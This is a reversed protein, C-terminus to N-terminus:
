DVMFDRIYQLVDEKKVESSEGTRRDKIEVIGEAAGKGVVIKLPFGILDADKFKFGAREDRDDLVAEIGNDSLETYIKEGLSVQTEDKINAIIVDVLYPAINKPWIIGFEDHNQEIAAAMVRSIGIGYCGMKIIQQKGNEDLVAANLAKSYKDGLKFIHGVEIGKALKLTGKGDPSTDGEKAKRIDAVLDYVIDEINVNIYHYEEKNAGLAFNRVYKVTEDIVVKLGDKKEYSGAYGPVLGFRECEEPTMMELEIKAGIANKLKISNVDLDGRILALVFNEGDETVEKLMVAKVTKEKPINLFNALDEITKAHPTKVLEKTLKKEDSEKLEIISVAKEVNAAYNSSDDYLIDDEGSEALVMFEHSSDGGISGSDAEVARFNLGCRTFIREYASKMNIYEEDLSKQDIHFSYADKMIFERGRMLGFRPRIEDRFKTQIQYLNFPLDKYSSVMNRVIDTVVEEHTPGLAFERENRDKLRMLEPGYAFWRGSEEWLSAPQLVPMFIEQAKARDMEERTINEIKRLVRYGLPLYSYVGRTLQKIMSARLMLQHSIIEAEKPAEKYTKLFAESLRM